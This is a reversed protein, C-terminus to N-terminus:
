VAAARAIGCCNGDAGLHMIVIECLANAFSRDAIGDLNPLVATGFQIEPHRRRALALLGESADFGVPPQANEWEDAFAEAGRNYANVTADDM